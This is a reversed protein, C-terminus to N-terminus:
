RRLAQMLVIWLVMVALAGLMLLIRRRGGDGALGDAAQRAAALAGQATVAHGQLAADLATIEAESLAAHEARLRKDCDALLAEAAEAAARATICARAVAESAQRFREDDGPVLASRLDRCSWGVRVVDHAQDYVRRLRVQREAVRRAEARDGGVRAPPPPPEFRPGEPLDQPLKLLRVVGLGGFLLAVFLALGGIVVAMAVFVLQPDAPM